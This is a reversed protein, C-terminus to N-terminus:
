ELPCQPKYHRVGQSDLTYPPKCGPKPVPAPARPPSLPRRQAAVATQPPSPTAAATRAPPEGADLSSSTDPPARPPELSAAPASSPAERHAASAPSFARVSTLTIAVLIVVGIGAGWLLSRPAVRKTFPPAEVAAADTLTAAESFSPSVVTRENEISSLMQARRHLADGSVSEVWEGVKSASAPPAADELARAMQRAQDFRHGPDRALARLVVDDLAPSVEPNHLSPPDVVRDLVNLVTAGESSSAFLRKNTLLEWLVVGTAYLDVRRDIADGRLQEPAMYALKGKIQGERTTTLRNRAKAVGFDIVRAVGDAGVLVNQPSVDRHVIGLPEGRESTADHAAQLGQLLGCVIASIVPLPPPLKSDNAAERLAALSEGHVYEM